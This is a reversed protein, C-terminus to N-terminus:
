RAEPAKPGAGESLARALAEMDGARWAEVVMRGRETLTIRHVTEQTQQMGGYIRPLGRDAQALGAAILRRFNLVADASYMHPRESLSLFILDDITPADFARNLAVLMGKWVRIAERPIDGRHYLRHCTPCLAILNELTNAGGESVHDIHHLDLALITRCTPVACRYGAETLVDLRVSPPIKQSAM